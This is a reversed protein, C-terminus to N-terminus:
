KRGIWFFIKSWFSYSDKEKETLEAWPPLMPNMEQKACYYRFARKRKAM